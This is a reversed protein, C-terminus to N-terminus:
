RRLSSLYILHSIKDFNGSQAQLTSLEAWLPNVKAETENINCTHSFSAAFFVVQWCTKGREFLQTFPRSVDNHSYLIFGSAILQREFKGCLLVLRVAQLLLESDKCAQIAWPDQVHILRSKM